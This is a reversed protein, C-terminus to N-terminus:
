GGSAQPPPALSNSASNRGLLSDLQQLFSTADLFYNPYASRLQDVSEVSVLVANAGPETNSAAKLRQEVQAYLAAAEPLDSVRRFSTVNTQHRDPHLELLYFAAKRQGLQPIIGVLQELTNRANLRGNLSRIGALLEDRDSPTGPVLSKGEHLAFASSVMAMFQGWERNGEFTRMRQSFYTELTEVATAWYHQLRSRLQIEVLMGNYGVNGRGQYSYILHLSRYGDSKPTAIYDNVKKRHHRIQSAEYLQRIRDLAECDRTIVRCGAIDQMKWLTMGQARMRRLKAQISSLRKLRQAFINEPDVEDAKKRLTIQVVNMPWGHAGRWNTLVPLISDDVPGASDRLAEGAVVIEAQTYALSVRALSWSRRGFAPTRPYSLDAPLSSV